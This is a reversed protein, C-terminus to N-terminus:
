LVLQGGFALRHLAAPAYEVHVRAAPRRVASAIAETLAAAETQAETATPVQRKLVTVFVPLEDAAVSSDNEAYHARDLTHLRVWTQGPPSQLVRGVADAVAQAVDPKPADAREVVLEVTVIPM